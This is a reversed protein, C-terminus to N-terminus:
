HSLAEVYRSIEHAEIDNQPTPNSLIQTQESISRYIFPPLNTVIDDHNKFNLVHPCNAKLLDSLKNFGIRPCGFVILQDAKMLATLLCARAAGLSHGTVILSGEIMPKVKLVFERVDNLFGGSIIGLQEDFDPAINFDNLWDELDCSGRFVIVTAHPLYKIGATICGVKLVHDFDGQKPTYIAQCLLAADYPKMDQKISDM